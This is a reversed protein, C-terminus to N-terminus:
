QVAAGGFVKLELDVVHCSRRLANVDKWMEVWHAKERREDEHSEKWRGVGYPGSRGQKDIRV